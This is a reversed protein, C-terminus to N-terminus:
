SSLEYSPNKIPYRPILCLVQSYKEQHIDKTLEKLDMRKGEKSQEVGQISVETSETLPKQVKQNGPQLLPPCYAAEASILSFCITLCLYKNGYQTAM